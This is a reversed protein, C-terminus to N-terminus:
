QRTADWMNLDPRGTPDPNTTAPKMAKAHGDCLLFNAMGNHSATVSGDTTNPYTTGTAKGNPLTRPGWGGGYNDGAIICTPAFGSVNGAPYGSDGSNTKQYSNYVTDSHKEAILISEASRQVEGQTMPTPQLWSDNGTTVFPGRLSFYQTWPGYYGNAAYSTGVGAWEFGPIPQGGMTDDPCTFVGLSKCYPQVLVPWGGNVWNDGEFGIPFAEDYDQSYGLVAIGIQKMNSLCSTQRAKERAQAFVPFLIAALIAIIAIVVLLEILTFGARSRKNVFFFSSAATQM